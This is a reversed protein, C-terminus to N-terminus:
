RRRVATYATRRAKRQDIHELAPDDVGELGVQPLGGVYCTRSSLPPEDIQQVLEIVIADLDSALPRFEADPRAVDASVHM